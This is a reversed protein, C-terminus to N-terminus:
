FQFRRAGHERWKKWTPLDSKGTELNLGACAKPGSRTGTVEMAPMGVLMWLGGGCSAGELRARGGFKVDSTVCLDVGEERM